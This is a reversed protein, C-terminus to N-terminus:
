GARAAARRELARRWLEDPELECESEYAAVLRELDRPTRKGAEWSSVVEHSVGAATAIDILRLRASLRADKCVERLEDLV